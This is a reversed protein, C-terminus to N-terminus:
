LKVIKVVSKYQYDIIIEVFYIGKQMKSMDLQHNVYIDDKVFEKRLVKKGNVDYLAISTRGKAPDQLEILAMGYVPNPFIKVVPSLDRRAGANNVVVKVTAKDSRGKDDTVTLEFEYEGAILGSAIILEENPYEIIAPSPGSLMRWNYSEIRGSQVYSGSGDLLLENEPLTLTLAQGADAAPPPVVADESIVEVNVDASATSGNSDTVTLRFIYKGAEVAQIGPTASNSNIITASGPGSIKMWKYNTISGNPAYSGSGDLLLIDAPLQVSFDNGADAVPPKVPAPNVIVTVSATASNGNSDTVKLQFVYTGAVLGNVTTIAKTVDTITGASPGSIKSWTYSKIQASSATSNTGNLTISNAPLMITQTNGANAVPPLPAAKVTIFVTSESVEGRNDTVKLRFQYVGETLNTVSCIAESSSIINGGSPGSVKSWEYSVINGGYSTSNSGDLISSNVPLMITQDGGADAVPPPQAAKVTVTITATAKGGKNDIVELQFKYIGAALGTVTTSVGESDAISGEIPGSIKSWKYGVITNGSSASSASGNLVVTNVPLTITQASGANAVPPMPAAKVTITVSATSTAGNNDTITLEFVYAGEALGTVTAVTSNLITITEGSPGSVKAWAYSSISGSPATSGSGDLTVSNAPLTITQAVGADAVPPLPAAKVTITVSATSTAGNNDTVTLEFVYVGEALGTVTTVASNLITITEGSPGSVKAWAYSSISGSPATSGSGDLTVSNAPLTITQAVGADAVPPLPAAKVTITVSATSTAGNNDTVTLKFNYVGETLATVTTVASNLITITEGSPGSVKAWAYSSISGSPATSGSGDLTVSNAPLTITQAVGADAVPPLPAAKVTITVSATSTAGNNDTITLEFVYVGEALGTVTTVASNLITITEGSPGSVKAWAYSSISGSPATSGSGDLIVTNEPLSITRDAGADAVPPLPAAKVTIIVLATSTAGNNDTVTLEFNYVGETLATVTTVASNLITITEGSPGSVKAWAYSSISGSSATSGSGDLTVSNAPLTITQAVGADAVPPLPAAKVTITVSATSTAGNNDTVTLQFKYIGETLSNIITIASDPATMTEGSPGSIKSWNYSSINGAPATSASGDLTVTNYPLTIAQSSGADAIPPTVAASVTITIISSSVAGNTDTVKLQFQYVGEALGTVSTVASNLTTITEGSPGSVKSWTYSSISGSPATSGSGDLIVTNEPLSITRDAGADAVPPLPAAKVTITVSATSTAGNNDTVTLKFNYVGETLATVTTVASNLITITEGSPGSVKAWAYSSISGSPATSGSGDLTVSNAPLTITQAVGADAVPPLPAAKVTITVSATSTAGNNDTVTLEFVYVGEALGTVTTVASNLITITEGSPGSVKAWAYSSISGSPATSGSGDLTVSNAPLTITQAVGADAVPPLPAAKVTITVSATSTAGNNDTVTLEFNYVGETLATVTTVASNLITITEGSPGSVKAWAYSSISGSSATSGSGDLTVSNAPLTITQAVGADAVPPLPAAKVTITVSATSTAGNNDTVTLEFVYVGEALGTVTTVASNLITITEGSPGSVKAWAYSSISGSPATSGSGDLTVSNAPLTITQAVGADAVPPLPAAKVTITVVSTSSLGKSNTVKLEFKYIGETLGTVTTIAEIPETIVENLPGSVKRWEYGGITDGPAASGSGDLTVVNNPLIITQAVGANAVPPAVLANVTVNVTASSVAGNNDTVKLEFQYIGETLESVTTSVGSPTAINENSPGSVKSWEYSSISGSSATSGSGDLVISNVPLNISQDNGADAIPPLPAVNVTISVTATSTGGNSDTIKLQFIYVGEVLGSVLTYSAGPSTITGSSPGSLKSWQYSTITGSPATSQTGDLNVYNVPLTITQANGANAVPPLLAPNVKITVVATSTGGKSDTIKLQFQYTGETLDIASTKVSNYSSITGGLPGSVKTWVYSTITGAPATSKTGDLTGTNVPLTLVQDTGANAIPPLSTAIGRKHSLMWEYVNMGDERFNPDYTKSWADHGSANFITLKAKPDPTPICANVAKVCSDLKWPPAGTDGSNNTGWMSVKSSAINCAEGDRPLVGACVLLMAAIRSANAKSRGAYRWSMYGGLSLGTLYIRDEDVRYKAICYKILSDISPIYNTAEKSQPSIVIFSFNEGGVTFSSPFKGQNILKPPGNVLVRPLEAVSGDGREGNGHLFIIIPFKKTPQSEYNVPLSEYYGKINDGFAM